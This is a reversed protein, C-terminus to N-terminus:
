IAVRHPGDFLSGCFYGMGSHLEALSGPRLPAIQHLTDFAILPYRANRLNNAADNV